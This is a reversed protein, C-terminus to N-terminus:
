RTLEEPPTAADRKALAAERAVRQRARQRERRVQLHPSLWDWLMVAVFVAYAGIVYGQYSM